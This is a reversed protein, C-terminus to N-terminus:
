GWRRVFILELRVLYEAGYAAARELIDRGETVRRFEVKLRRVDESQTAQAQREVAPVWREKIWGAAKAQFEEAFRRTSM